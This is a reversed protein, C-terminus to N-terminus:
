QLQPIYRFRNDIDTRELVNGLQIAQILTTSDGRADLAYTVIDQDVSKISIGNIFNLSELYRIVQSYAAFNTIGSVTIVVMSASTYGVQQTYTAAYLDALRHIGESLAESPTSGSSQWTKVEKGKILAWEIQVVNGADNVIATVSNDTQYRASAATIIAWNANLLDQESLLVFDDADLQPLKIPLGRAYATTAITQDFESGNLPAFRSGEATKEVVWFLTSPRDQGWIPVSYEALATQLLVSDFKAWLNLAQVEGTNTNRIEYEQLYRKSDELIKQVGYIDTAATKGTIKVLSQLLAGRIGRNQSESSKDIIPVVGEYLGQLRAAMANVPLCILLALAIKITVNM